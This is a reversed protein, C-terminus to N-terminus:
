IGVYNRTAVRGDSRVIGQFTVPEVAEPATAAGTSVAADATDAFGVNHVHVHDGPAIPRTAYGIVQGYKLVPADQEVATVAVKHGPPIEERAVVSAASGGDPDLSTGPALGDLTVAVSDDPRLRLLRTRSTM